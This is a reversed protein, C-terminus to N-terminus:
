AHEKTTMQQVPKLSLNFLKAAQRDQESFSTMVKKVAGETETIRVVLDDRKRDWNASFQRMADALQDQGLHGLLDNTHKTTEEFDKRINGLSTLTEGLVIYNVVIVSCQQISM